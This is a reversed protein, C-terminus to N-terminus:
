GKCAARIRLHKLAPFLNDTESPLICYVLQFHSFDNWEFRKAVIRVLYLQLIHQGL